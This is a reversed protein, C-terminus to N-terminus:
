VLNRLRAYKDHLMENRQTLDKIAKKLGKIEVELDHIKRGNTKKLASIYNKVTDDSLYSKRELSEIVEESNDIVMERVQKVILDYIGPYSKDYRMNSEHSKRCHVVTAHHKGMINGISVFTLHTENSLAVAFAQRVRVNERERNDKINYSEVIGKWLQVASFYQSNIVPPLSVSRGM